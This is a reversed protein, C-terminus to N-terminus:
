SQAQKELWVEERDVAVEPPAEVRLRVQEGRVRVVTVRIGGGIVLTEDPRRTLVLAGLQKEM